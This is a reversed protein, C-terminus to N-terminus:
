RRWRSCSQAATAWTRRPPPPAPSTIRRRLSSARLGPRRSSKCCRSSSARAGKATSANLLNGARACTGAAGADGLRAAAAGTRSRAARHGRSCAGASDAQHFCELRPVLRPVASILVLFLDASELAEHATHALEGGPLYPALLELEEATPACTRLKQIDEAHIITEDLTLLADRVASHGGKFKALAICIQNSRKLDLLMVRQGRGGGGRPTALNSASDGRPTPPVSGRATRAGSSTQVTFLRKLEDPDIPAISRPLAEWM